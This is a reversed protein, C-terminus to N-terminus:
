RSHPRGASRRPRAPQPRLVDIRRPLYDAHLLAFATLLAIREQRLPQQLHQTAVPPQVTRLTPEERAPGGRSVDTRVRHPLHEALGAFLGPQAAPARRVRQPVGEGRMQQLGAGVQHHELRQQAVARDPGGADVRVHAQLVQLLRGAQQLPQRQLVDLRGVDGGRVTGSRSGHDGEGLPRRQLDGVNQAGMACGVTGAM